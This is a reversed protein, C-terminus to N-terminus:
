LRVVCCPIAADATVTVGGPPRSPQVALANDFSTGTIYTPAVSEVIDDKGRHALKELGRVYALEHVSCIDEVSAKRFEQINVLQLAHCWSNYLMRM